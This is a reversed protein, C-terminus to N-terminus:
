RLLTLGLSGWVKVIVKSQDRNNKPNVDVKATVVAPNIFSGAKIAKAKVKIVKM